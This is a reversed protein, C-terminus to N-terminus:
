QWQQSGKLYITKGQIATTDIGDGIGIPDEGRKAAEASALLVRHLMSVAVDAASLMERIRDRIPGASVSVAVDEAIVGPLGSFSRGSRMLERDQHFRNAHSPARSTTSLEPTIGATELTDRDLGLFKLHESRM